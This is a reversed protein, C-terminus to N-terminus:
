ENENGWSTWGERNGRAFLEIKNNGPYMTEILEYVLDPKRSHERRPAEIISSPRDSPLPIPLNGRTAILLLEHQQRAYYGMGIKDKIWVMNTKYTFDWSSIVWMAEELKPSTAWLFLVSDDMAIERVPLGYLEDLSMTPYQNEIKRNDTLSFDYRWPPDAYIIQYKGELPPPAVREIKTMDRVVGEVIKATPINGHSIKIAENWAEIQQEPELKTLSRVQSENMPLIDGIPSLNDIVVSSEILRYAQPRSMGWRDRCYADFTSYEQKYLKSNKIELLSKGVHTFTKLGQEIIRELDVLRQIEIQTLENKM